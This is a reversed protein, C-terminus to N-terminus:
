TWHNLHFTLSFNTFYAFTLTKIHINVKLHALVRYAFHMLYFRFHTRRDPAATFTLFSNLELVDDVWCLVCDDLTNRACILLCMDVFYKFFFDSKALM